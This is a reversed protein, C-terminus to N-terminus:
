AHLSSVQRSSTQAVSGLFNPAMARLRESAERLPMLLRKAAKAETAEGSLLNVNLAAVVQGGDGRVPVSLGCVAEDFEGDVWAYGKDQVEALRARLAEPTAVTRRTCPKLEVAALYRALAEEDQWALLVRGPSTAYAPLRSGVGLRLSMVKRSPIRLLYISHRGDFASLAVSEKVEACLQELVEQAVGWFPLSTLYTMGLNLIKPTLRFSKGDTVTFGLETLTMLIRRAVTRPLQTSAAVSAVTHEGTGSGMAEIVSLGRAFSRVFGDSEPTAM